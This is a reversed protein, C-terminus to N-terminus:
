KISPNNVLEVNAYYIRIPKLPIGDNLGRDSKEVAVMSINEIVDMGKIVRGFITWTKELKKAEELCIFFQSTNTNPGKNAMAVVGKEYGIKYSPTNPNLEDKIDGGYFSEGGYGWLERKSDYITNRDGMQILFNKAVRHILIGNYYNLKILGIFNAVTEPADEGYLGIVFDGMSTKFTVHHTILSTDSLSIDDYQKVEVPKSYILDDTTDIADIEKYERFECSYVILTLLILTIIRKM